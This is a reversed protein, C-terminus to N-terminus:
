STRCGGGKSAGKAAEGAEPSPAAHPRLAGRHQRSHLQPQGRCVHCGRNPTHHCFDCAGIVCASRSSLGLPVAPCNIFAAELQIAEGPLSEPSLPALLMYINSLVPCSAEYLHALQALHASIDACPTIPELQSQVAVFHSHTCLWPQGYTAKSHSLWRKDLITLTSISPLCCSTTAM